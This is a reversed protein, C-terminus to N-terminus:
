KWHTTDTIRKVGDSDYHGRSSIHTDIARGRGECSSCPFIFWRYGSGGCVECPKWTMFGESFGRRNGEKRMESPPPEPTEEEPQPIINEKQQLEGVEAAHELIKNAERLVSEMKREDDFSIGETKQGAGGEVMAEERVKEEGSIKEQPPLVESFQEFSM